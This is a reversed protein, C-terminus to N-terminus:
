SRDSGLNPIQDSNRCRQLGDFPGDRRPREIGIGRPQLRSQLLQGGDTGLIIAANTTSAEGWGIAIAALQNGAPHAFRAEGDPNIGRPIQDSSEFSGLRSQRRQDGPGMEIGNRSSTVEIPGQPHHGTKLHHPGQLLLALAKTMRKLQDGKGILLGRHHAAFAHSACGTVIWRVVGRAIAFRNGQVKFANTAM